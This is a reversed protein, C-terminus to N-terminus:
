NLGLGLPLKFIQSSNSITRMWSTWGSRLPPRLRGPLARQASGM